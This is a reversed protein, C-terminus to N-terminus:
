FKALTHHDYAAKIWQIKFRNVINRSKKPFKEFTVACWNVWNELQVDNQSSVKGKSVGLNVFRKICCLKEGKGNTCTKKRLRLSFPRQENMWNLVSEESTYCIFWHENSLWDRYSLAFPIFTLNFPFINRKNVENSIYLSVCRSKMKTLSGLNKFKMEHQLFSFVKWKKKLHYVRFSASVM